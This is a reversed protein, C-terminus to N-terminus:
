GIEDGVLEEDIELVQQIADQFNQFLVGHMGTKRAAAVNEPKDDLFLIESPPLNMQEAAFHYIDANPKSVGCECSFVLHEFCSYNQSEFLEVAPLETNSLVGTQIGTDQLKTAWDLTPNIEVYVEDFAKGWLGEKVASPVSISYYEGVANWFDGEEIEGRQFLDLLELPLGGMSKFDVGWTNAIVKAMGPAPNEIIVGGWDFFVGRIKPM